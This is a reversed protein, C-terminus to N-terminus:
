RARKGKMGEGHGGGMRGDRTWWGARFAEEPIGEALIIGEAGM